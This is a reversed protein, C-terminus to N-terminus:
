GRNAMLADLVEAANIAAINAENDHYRAAARDDLEIQKFMRWREILEADTKDANPDM